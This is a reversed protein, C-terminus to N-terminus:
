SELPTEWWATPSNFVTCEVLLVERLGPTIVKEVLLPHKSIPMIVEEKEVTIVVRGLEGAEHVARRCLGTLSTVTIKTGTASSKPTLIVSEKLSNPM